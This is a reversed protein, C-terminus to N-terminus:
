APGVKPVATSTRVVLKTPHEADEPELVLGNNIAGLLTHVALAGQGKADQDITTLGMVNGLDHGDIGMVSLDEPIRVGARTAEFIIGMAMEDSACFIATPRDRM